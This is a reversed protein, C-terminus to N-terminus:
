LEEPKEGRDLAAQMDGYEQQSWCQRYFPCFNNCAFSGRAGSWDEPTGLERRDAKAKITRARLNVQEVVDPDIEIIFDQMRGSDRCVLLIIARKLGLRGCYLHVQAVYKKFKESKLGKDYDKRGVTKVDLIYTEGNIEVEHDVRGSWSDDEASVRFESRPKGDADRTVAGVADLWKEFLEHIATGFDAVVSWEPNNVGTPAKRFGMIAMTQQRECSTVGSAYVRIQERDGREEKVYRYVEQVLGLESVRVLDLPSSPKPAAPQSVTTATQQRRMTNSGIPM